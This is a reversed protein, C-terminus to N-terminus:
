RRGRFSGNQWGLTVEETEDTSPEQCSGAAPGIAKETSVDRGGGQGAAARRSPATSSALGALPAAPPIVAMLAGAPLPADIQPPTASLVLSAMTSASSLSLPHTTPFPTTALCHSVPAFRPQPLLASGTPPVADMASPPQSPSPLPKGATAPSPLDSSPSPSRDDPADRPRARKAGSVGASPSLGRPTSHEAAGQVPDGDMLVVDDDEEEEQEEEVEVEVEVPAEEAPPPTEEREAAFDDDQMAQVEEPTLIPTQSASSAPQAQRKEFLAYSFSHCVERIVEVGLQERRLIDEMFAAAPSTGTAAAGAGAGAGATASVAAGATAAGAQTASTSSPGSSPPPNIVSRLLTKVFRMADAQEPTLSRVKEDYLGRLEEILVHNGMLVDTDVFARGAGTTRTLWREKSSPTTASQESVARARQKPAIQTTADWEQGSLIINSTKMMQEVSQTGAGDHMTRRWYTQQFRYHSAEFAQLTLPCM